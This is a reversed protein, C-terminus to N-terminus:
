ADRLVRELPVCRRGVTPLDAVVSTLEPYAAALRLETIGGAPLEALTVPRWGQPTTRAAQDLYVLLREDVTMVAAVLGTLDATRLAVSMEAREAVPLSLFFPRVTVTTM